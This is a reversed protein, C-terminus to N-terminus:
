RNPSLGDRIKISFSETLTTHRFMDAWIDMRGFEEDGELLWRLAFKTRPIVRCVPCIVENALARICWSLKNELM